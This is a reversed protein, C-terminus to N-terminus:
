AGIQTPNTRILDPRGAELWWRDPSASSADWLAIKDPNYLILSNKAENESNPASFLVNYHMQSLVSAKRYCSIIFSGMFHCVLSDLVPCTSASGTSASRSKNGGKLLGKATM